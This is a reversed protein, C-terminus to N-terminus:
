PMRHRAGVGFSKALKAVMAASLQKGITSEGEWAYYFVTEGLIGTKRRLM